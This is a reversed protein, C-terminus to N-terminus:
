QGNVRRRVEDLILAFSSLEELDEPEFQFGFEEEVVTMLTVANVSDWGGLSARSAKVAEDEPLGPFVARFCRLLRQKCDDM